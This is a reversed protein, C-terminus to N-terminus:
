TTASAPVAPVMVPRPLYKRSFFGSTFIMAACGEIEDLGEGSFGCGAVISPTFGNLSGPNGSAAFAGKM